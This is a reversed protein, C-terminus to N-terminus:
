LENRRLESFIQPNLALRELILKVTHVLNGKVKAIRDALFLPFPYGKRSLKNVIYLINEINNYSKENFEVYYVSGINVYTGYINISTRSGISSRVKIPPLYCPKSCSDLRSKIILYEPLHMENIHHRELYKSRFMDKVISLVPVRGIKEVFAREFSAVMQRLEYSQTTIYDPFTLSGDLLVLDVDSSIYELENIRSVYTLILKSYRLDKILIPKVDYAAKIVDSYIVSAVAVVGIHCNRYKILSFGADVAQINLKPSISSVHLPKLEIKNEYERLASVAQPIQYEAIKYINNILKKM